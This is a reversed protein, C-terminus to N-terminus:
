GGATQFSHTEIQDPNTVSAFSQRADVRAIWALWGMALALLSRELLGYIPSGWALRFALAMSGTVVAFLLSLRREALRPSRVGVTAMAAIIAIGGVITADVHIQSTLTHMDGPLDKPALGAIVATVGYVATLRGVLRSQFSRAGLLVLAGYSVFGLAALLAFPQGPSALRSVTDRAQGYGPTVAGVVVITSVLVVVSADLWRPRM